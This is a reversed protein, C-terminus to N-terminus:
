KENWARQWWARVGWLVLKASIAWSGEVRLSEYLIYDAQKRTIPSGDELQHYTYLYDHLVYALYQTPDFFLWMIRPISGMDTRFGKPVIVKGQKSQYDIFWYFPESVEWLKTGSLKRLTWDQTSAITFKNAYMDIHWIIGLFWIWIATCIRLSHISIRERGMWCGLLKTSQISKKCWGMLYYGYRTRWYISRMGKAYSSYFQGM